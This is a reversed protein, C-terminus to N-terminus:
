KKESNIKKLLENLESPPIIEPLLLDLVQAKEFGKFRYAKQTSGNNVYILDGQYVNSTVTTSKDIIGEIILSFKGDKLKILVAKESDVLLKNLAGFYFGEKQPYEGFFTSGSFQDYVLESWMESEARNNVYVRKVDVQSKGNIFFAVNKEGWKLIKNDTPGMVIRSTGEINDQTFYNKLEYTIRRTTDRAYADPSGLNGFFQLYSLIPMGNEDWLSYSTGTRKFTNPIAKVAEKKEKPKSPDVKLKAALSAIENDPVFEAPLFEGLKIDKFGKFRYAKVVNLANTYFHVVDDGDMLSYDYNSM